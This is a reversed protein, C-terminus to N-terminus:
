GRAATLIRPGDETVAVTHEWHAARSGDATIVTWQDELIVTKVTGLTLMPEIALVSGPALLPGRGPPGENPLFPDMHMERGIGHGGYGAVLHFKRDYATEAARAGSEIAHSVDGLRNGPVMAAIGAEMAQRTAASLSEDSATLKGVGFTIAADGHWGDLIAGCDISVLDGPALVEASSPIGHVVRDNLSACISAPYGHYGLFSPTAGADRIVSEAVEDLSLSSTGVVAADRVAQLAAAVVAGAAAMADLEGVSRQPVVKRNRRKPLGVM